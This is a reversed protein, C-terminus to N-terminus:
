VSARRALPPPFLPGSVYAETIEQERNNEDVEKALFTEARDAGM